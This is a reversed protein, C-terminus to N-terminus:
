YVLRLGLHAIIVADLEDKNVKNSKYFFGKRFIYSLDYIIEGNKIRTKVAKTSRSSVPNVIWNLKNKKVFQVLFRHLAGTILIYNIVNLNIGRANAIAKEFSVIVDITSYKYKLKIDNIWKEIKDCHKLWEKSYFSTIEIDKVIGTTTNVLVCCLGTTGTGSQDIGIFLVDKKFNIKTDM